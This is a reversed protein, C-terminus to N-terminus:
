INALKKLYGKYLSCQKHVIICYFDLDKSRGTLFSIIVKNRFIGGEMGVGLSYLFHGMCSMYM